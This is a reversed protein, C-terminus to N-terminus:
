GCIVEAYLLTMYITNIDVKVPIVNFDIDKITTLTIYNCWRIKGNSSGPVQVYIILNQDQFTNLISNVEEQNINHRCKM